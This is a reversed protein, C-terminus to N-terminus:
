VLPLGKANMADLLAAIKGHFRKGHPREWSVGTIGAAVAREAVLEGM